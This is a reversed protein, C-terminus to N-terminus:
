GHKYLPIVEEGLFHMQEKLQPVTDGANHQPVIHTIGIKGLEHVKEAVEEPSGILHHGQTAEYGTAFRWGLFSSKFREVAREHTSDICLVASIVVDIELPDRGAKEAAERLGEVRSRLTDPSAAMTMLGLGYKAVRDFTSPVRGSIYIPLPNQLPRPNLAVKSFRYYRGEFSVQSGTLLLTVAELGEDLMGSRNARALRPQLMEFEDRSGGLGLGFLLRGGSFVDLTAVQKALIVPDRFPMVIVGLGLRIRNTVAACYALSILAEYWNLSQGSNEDRRAKWPTIHDNDWLSDFGLKEALRAIEVLDKPGVACPKMYLGEISTPLQFGFKM